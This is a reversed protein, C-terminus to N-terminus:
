DGVPGLADSGWGGGERASGRTFVLTTNLLREKLWALDPTVMSEM